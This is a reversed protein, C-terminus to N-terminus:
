HHNTVKPVPRAQLQFSPTNVSIVRKQPGLISKLLQPKVYNVYPERPQKLFLNNLWHKIDKICTSKTVVWNLIFAMQTLPILDSTPMTYDEDSGLTGCCKSQTDSKYHCSRRQQDSKSALVPTWHCHQAARTPKQIGTRHAKAASLLPLVWRITRRIKERRWGRFVYRPPVLKAALNPSAKTSGEPVTQFM